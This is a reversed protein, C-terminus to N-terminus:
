GSGFGEPFAIPDGSPVWHIHKQSPLAQRVNPTLAAPEPGGQRGKDAGKLPQLFVLVPVQVLYRHNRSNATGTPNGTVDTQIGKVGGM